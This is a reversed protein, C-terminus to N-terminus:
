QLKRKKKERLKDKNKQSWNSVLGKKEEKKGKGKKEKRGM